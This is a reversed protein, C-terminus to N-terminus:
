QHRGSGRLLWFGLLSGSSSKALRWSIFVQIARGRPNLEGFFPRTESGMSSNAETAKARGLAIAQRRKSSASTSTSSAMLPDHTLAIQLFASSRESQGSAASEGESCAIEGSPFYTAIPQVSLARYPVPLRVFDLKLVVRALTTHGLHSDGSIAFLNNERVPPFSEATM